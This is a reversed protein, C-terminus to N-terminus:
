IGSLRVLRELVLDSDLFERAFSAAAAAHRDYASEVDNIAQAASDIDSFTLLGSGTPLYNAIGTDQVIAPRGAALYCASRDSFWGTRGAVYGGKAVTFEGRSSVIYNRYADTTAILDRPSVLHWDHQELDLRAKENSNILLCIELPVSVRHPLDILRLFEDAKQGYWVGHWQVPKFGRWDAITSYAVGPLHDSVWEGLVVPPLTTEWRIGCTPFPCDTKGLNLGITVYVDYGDLDIDFGLERWIQTYGPDMDLYMRRRVKKLISECRLNGSLNILLDIDPALREVQTRSLGVAGSDHNDFLAAHDFLDFREMLAHFHSANTSRSFCVRDGKDNVCKDSPIEEVYYPEFGLRRLGLIYQLFAWTNGGYGPGAAAICGAIMIRKPM